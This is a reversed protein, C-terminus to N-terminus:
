NALQDQIITTLIAKSQWSQKPNSQDQKKHLEVMRWGQSRRIHSPAYICLLLASYSDRRYNLRSRKIPQTPAGVTTTLTSWTMWTTLNLEWWPLFTNVLETGITAWISSSTLISFLIGQQNSSCSALSLKLWGDEHALTLFHLQYWKRGIGM